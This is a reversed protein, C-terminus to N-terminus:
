FAILGGHGPAHVAFVTEDALRDAQEDVAVFHDTTLELCAQRLHFRHRFGGRPLLVGSTSQRADRNIEARAQWAAPPFLRPAFYIDQLRGSVRRIISRVFCDVILRFFTILVCVCFSYKSSNRPSSQYLPREGSSSWVTMLWHLAHNSWNVACPLILAPCGSTRSPAMTEPLSPRTTASPGNASDLSTM